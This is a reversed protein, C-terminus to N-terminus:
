LVFQSYVYDFSNRVCKYCLNQRKVILIQKIKNDVYTEAIM